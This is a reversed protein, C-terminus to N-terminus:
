NPSAITPTTLYPFFDDFAQDNVLAGDTLPAAGNPACSVPLLAGIVARLEIDVVDDGPRRGNPFGALDGGLVGLNSQQGKPKAAISTNLRMMEGPTMDGQPKNLGDVGTLFVSVLDNRPLCPAAVGFLANLLAPLTPNTVYTLFQGDNKPESNNFKNKDKLGIVVENVLPMALRSVQVFQGTEMAPQSFSPSNKLLRTKPLSATTWAGVVPDDGQVLLSKPLELILSTINDGALLDEEGDVAGLPDLNVLDFVEGLNAVFPDDRQGVFVRGPTESGPILIDYIHGRAYLEYNPISKAGINDVPKLFTTGGSTLNVVSGGNDDDDDDDGGYVVDITYTEVVNLNSTNDIAIPGVNILPVAVMQGGINLKINKLDNRFQFRFTIDPKADGDNDFKIEYRAEPDLQFFNPGGYPIQFPVYNAVITVFDERGPEYSNFMYFDTADVKPLETIYPAERHSSGLATASTAALAMGGILVAFFRSAKSSRDSFRM